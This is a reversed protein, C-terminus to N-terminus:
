RTITGDIRAWYNELTPLIEVEHIQKAMLLYFFLLLPFPLICIDPWACPKM